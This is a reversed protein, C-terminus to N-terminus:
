NRSGYFVTCGHNSTHYYIDYPIDKHELDDILDRLEGSQKEIDTFERSTAYSRKMIMFDNTKSESMHATYGSKIM